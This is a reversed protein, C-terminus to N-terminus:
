SLTATASLRKEPTPKGPLGEYAAKADGYLSKLLEREEDTYGKLNWDADTFHLEEKEDLKRVVTGKWQGWVKTNNPLYADLFKRPEDPSLVCLVFVVATTRTTLIYKTLSPKDLVEDLLIRQQIKEKDFSSLISNYAWSVGLSSIFMIQGFLSGQPILFLQAIFQITLLISCCGIYEDYSKSPFHLSFRGLTVCNVAGEEGLLVVLEKGSGLVGDGRPSGAAPMHHMFRLTGSGIVFCSTGNSLIGWLILSFSFWDRYVGSAICAALSITIPFIALSRSAGGSPTIDVVTPPVKDLKAITVGVDSGGRGPIRTVNNVAACEKMFVSALHGTSDMITGSAAARFGPGQWDDFEFIKAAESRVGPFLGRFVPSKAIRGYRKAIEYSGPTNYWGLGKRGKYVHVTAMASIAEDGGFFGSVGSADLSFPSADLPTPTTIISSRTLLDSVYPIYM